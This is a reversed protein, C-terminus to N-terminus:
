IGVLCQFRNKFVKPHFYYKKQLQEYYQNLLKKWAPGSLDKEFDLQLNKPTTTDVSLSQQKGLLMLWGIGRVRPLKQVARVIYSRGVGKEWLTQWFIRHLKVTTSTSNFLGWRGDVPVEPRRNTLLASFGIGIIKTAIHGYGLYIFWRLLTMKNRM